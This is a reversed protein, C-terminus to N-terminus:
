IMSSARCLGALPKTRWDPMTGASWLQISIIPFISSRGSCAMYYLSVARVVAALVILGTLFWITVEPGAFDPDAANGDVVSQLLDGLLKILGGYSVVALSTLLACLAGASV